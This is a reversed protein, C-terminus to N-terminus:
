APQEQHGRGGEREAPGAELDPDDPLGDAAADNVTSSAIKIRSRHCTKRTPISAIRASMPIAPNLICESAAIAPGCEPVVALVLAVRFTRGVVSETM